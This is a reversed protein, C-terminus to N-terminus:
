GAESLEKEGRGEGFELVSGTATMDDNHISALMRAICENDKKVSIGNM